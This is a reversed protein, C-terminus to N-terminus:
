FDSEGGWLDEDDIIKLAEELVAHLRQHLDKTNKNAAIVGEGKECPLTESNAAVLAPVPPMWLPNGSMANLSGYCSSPTSSQSNKM